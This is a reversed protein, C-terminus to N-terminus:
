LSALDTAHNVANLRRTQGVNGAFGRRTPGGALCIPFAVLRFASLIPLQGTSRFSILAREDEKADAKACKADERSM